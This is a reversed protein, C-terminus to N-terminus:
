GAQRRFEAVFRDFEPDDGFQARSIRVAHQGPIEVFFQLGSLLMPVRLELVGHQHMQAWRILRHRHTGFPLWPFFPEISERLGQSEILWHGRTIQSAISPAWLMAAAFFVIAYIEQRAVATGSRLLAYIQIVAVFLAAGLVVALVFRRPSSIGARRLFVLGGGFNEANHVCDDYVIARGKSAPM